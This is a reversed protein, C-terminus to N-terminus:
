SRQVPQVWFQLLVQISFHDPFAGSPHLEQDNKKETM